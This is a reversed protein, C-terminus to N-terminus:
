LAYLLIGTITLPTCTVRTTQLLAAHEVAIGPVEHCVYVHLIRTLTNHHFVLGQQYKSPVHFSFAAHKTRM